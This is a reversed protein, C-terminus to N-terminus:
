DSPRNGAESMKTDAARNRELAQLQQLAPSLGSSVASSPPPPSQVGSPLSVRMDMDTPHTAGANLQTTPLPEDDDDGEAFFAEESSIERFKRQDERARESMVGRAGVQRSAAANTSDDDFYRSRPPQNEDSEDGQGRGAAGSTTFLNEEYKQRLQALTDVHPAAVDEISLRRPRSPNEGNKMSNEDPSNTDLYNTAIYEVLSRINETSIFNCMEIVASSVLNDGVPNNRFADFVPKFLDHQVIHRNYFEDRVSLVARLFRLASLKLCRNVSPSLHRLKGVNSPGGDLLGLITGLVRSRLVYFKMRYVHARVCFSLIEVAFSSRVACPPVNNLAIDREPDSLSQANITLIPAVAPSVISYQFPAVLWAVYFEYFLSLFRNEEKIASEVSGPPANNSSDDLSIGVMPGHNLSPPFDGLDSGSGGPGIDVDTLAAHNSDGGGAGQAGFGGIEGSVVDTHAMDTDLIIRMVESVQLLLGVDTEFALAYLLSLLLDPRKPAFVVVSIDDPSPRSPREKKAEDLCHRRVLCPDHVAISSTIELVASKEVISANPDALICGLLSLVKIGDGDGVESQGQLSNFDIPVEMTCMSEFFDERDSQQLNERVMSFLEKLFLLCDSRRTRRSALSSDQPSLHQSWPGSTAVTPPTPRQQHMASLPRGGNESAQKHEMKRIELLEAALVKLVRSLYSREGSAGRQRTVDSPEQPPVMVGRVVDTNVFSGLSSLTSLSSEDMTPRLITDRLYGVRFSRFIAEILERDPGNEREDMRIVTRFKTCNRLFHRHRARTRLDPDYELAACVDEFLPGSEIIPEIIAADNLLLVTKVCAALSALTPYDGRQEAPAFLSLLSRLYACENQSLFIAYSERQSPLPVTSLTTTINPLHESTPLPLSVGGVDDEMEAMSALASAHEMAAANGHFGTAESSPPEPGGRTMAGVQGRGKGLTMNDGPEARAASYAAAGDDPRAEAEGDSLLDPASTGREHHKGEAQNRQHHHQHHQDVGEMGDVLSSQHGPSHGGGHGHPHRGHSQSQSSHHHHHQHQGHRSRHHHHDMIHVPPDLLTRVGPRSGSGHHVIELARAQVNTIKSWIDLCGANDQFSLALDVGGSSSPDEDQGSAAATAAAGGGPSGSKDQQKAKDDDGDSSAKARGAGSSSGSSGAGAAAAAAASGEDGFSPECWTIINDGQRQYSDGRLLVRSCLLVRAEAASSAATAAATGDEEDEISSSGSGGDGDDDTAAAAAAVGSDSSSSPSSASSSSASSLEARMLLTPEGLQEYLGDLTSPPETTTTTTTSSSATSSTSSTEMSAAAAPPSSPGGDDSSSSAEAAAAAAAAAAAETAPGAAGEGRSGSEGDSSGGYGGGSSSGVSLRGEELRRKQRQERRKSRSSNKKAYPPGDHRGHILCVIRGTGCDDWTGDPNLVYLKVRWGDPQQHHQQQQQVQVHFASSCATRSTMGPPLGCPPPPPPPPPLPPPMRIGSSTISLSPGRSRTMARRLPSGTAAATSTHGPGTGIQQQEEKRRKKGSASPTRPHDPLHRSPRTSKSGSSTAADASRGPMPQSQRRTDDNSSTMATGITGISIQSDHALERRRRRSSSSSSRKRKTKSSSSASKRSQRASNAMSIVAKRTYHGTM